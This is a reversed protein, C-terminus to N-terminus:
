LGNRPKTALHRTWARLFTPMLNEDYTLRTCRGHSAEAITGIVHGLSPAMKAWVLYAGALYATREMGECSYVIVRRQEAIRQDILHCFMETQTFDPMDGRPIYFDTPCLPRKLGLDLHLPDVCVIASYGRFKLIAVSYDDGTVFIRGGMLAYGEPEDDDEEDVM